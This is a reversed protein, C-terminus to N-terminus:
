LISKLRTIIETEKIRDNMNFRKVFSGAPWNEMNYVADYHKFWTVFKFSKKYYEQRETKSKLLEISIIEDGIFRFIYNKM